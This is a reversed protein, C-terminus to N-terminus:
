WHCDRYTSNACAGMGWGTSRPGGQRLAHGLRRVRSQSDAGLLLLRHAVARLPHADGPRLRRRALEHRRERGRARADRDAGGAPQHRSAHLDAGAPLALRARRGGRSAGAHLRHPRRDVGGAPRLGAPPHPVAADPLVVRGAGRGAAGAAGRHALGARGDRPRLRLPVGAEGTARRGPDGARRGHHRGPDAPEGHRLGLASPARASLALAARRDRSRRRGPEGRLPQRRPPARRLLRRDADRGAPLRPGARPRGLDADLRRQQRQQGLLRRALHRRRVRRPPARHPVDLAARRHPRRVGARAGQRQQPDAAGGRRRLHGRRAGRRGGRDPAANTGIPGTALDIPRGDGVVAAAKLDVAGGAGFGAVRAGTRADLAVLRFGITVYLIRAEDGDSWYALGRGSLRRPSAAARAGEDERHMWLLEGTAADLAVVARRTGATAYVVGGAM